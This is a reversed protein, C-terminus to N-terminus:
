REDSRGQIGKSSFVNKDAAVDFVYVDVTATSVTKPGLDVWISRTHWSVSGYYIRTAHLAQGLSELTRRSPLDGFNAQPLGRSNWAERAVHGPISSYGAKRMIEDVSSIATIQSTEDGNEFVWPLAVATGQSIDQRRGSEQAPAPVALAVVAIGALLALPARIGYFRPWRNLLQRM